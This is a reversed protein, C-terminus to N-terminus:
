LLADSHATLVIVDFLDTSRRSMQGEELHEPVEAEPVVELFARHPGAPPGLSPPLSRYTSIQFRTKM